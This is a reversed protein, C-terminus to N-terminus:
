PASYCQGGHEAYPREGVVLGVRGKSRILDYCRHVWCRYQSITGTTNTVRWATQGPM